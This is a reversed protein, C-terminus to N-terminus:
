VGKKLLIEEYAEESVSEVKSIEPVARLIAQEIGARLTMMSMSCSSCAGLLKLKVVMDDTVGLLSVNGGDAQLYPRLQELAGEIRALFQPDKNLKM